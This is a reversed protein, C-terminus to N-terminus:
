KVMVMLGGSFYVVVWWIYAVLSYLSISKGTESNLGNKSKLRWLLVMDLLMALLASYGIFGHFTFPSNTSGIIMFSTATIDLAVGITIFTLVIGTVKKAKQGSIIGVSYSILALTVIGAGIISFINM